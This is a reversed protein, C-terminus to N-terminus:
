FTQTRSKEYFTGNNAIFVLISKKSPEIFLPESIAFEECFTITNEIDIDNSVIITLEQGDIPDGEIVITENESSIWVAIIRPIDADIPINVIEGPEPSITRSGGANPM